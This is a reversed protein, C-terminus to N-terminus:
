FFGDVFLILFVDFLFVDFGVWLVDFELVGGNFGFGGFWGGMGVDLFGM